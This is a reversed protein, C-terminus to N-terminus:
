STLNPGTGEREWVGWWPSAVPGCGDAGALAAPGSGADHQQRQTPLIASETSSRLGVRCLGIDSLMQWRPREVILTAM